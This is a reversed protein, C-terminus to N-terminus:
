RQRRGGPPGRKREREEEAKGSEAGRYVGMRPLAKGATTGSCKGVYTSDTTFGGFLM